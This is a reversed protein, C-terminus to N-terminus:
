SDALNAIAWPIPSVMFFKREPAIASASPSITARLAAGATGAVGYLMSTM